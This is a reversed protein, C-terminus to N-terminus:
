GLSYVFPACVVAEETGITGVRLTDSEFAFVRRESRRQIVFDMLM